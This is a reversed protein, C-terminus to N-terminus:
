SPSVRGSASFAMQSNLLQINMFIRISIGTSVRLAKLSKRTKRIDIERIDTAINKM